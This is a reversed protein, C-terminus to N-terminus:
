FIEVQFQLFRWRCLMSKYAFVLVRSKSEKALVEVDCFKSDLHPELAEVEVEFRKSDATM